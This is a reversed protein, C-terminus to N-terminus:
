RNRRCFSTDVEEDLEGSTLKGAVAELERIPRTFATALFYSAYIAGALIVSALIILSDRLSAFDAFAESKDIESMIVWNLGPLNLPKYASLVEVGRYDPFIQINTEGSIAARTGITDVLQLGISNNLNDIQLVTEEDVGIERILELYQERDEILFRSQNRLLLDEGVLYTEGSEGLGVNSWSQNSTMIADIEEVSIELVLVGKRVDEIFIPSAVFATPAGYAPIYKEFDAFVFEGVDLLKAAEVADGFNTDSHPGDILSTGFEIGRSVSYVVRSNKEAILYVDNYGFRSAFDSFFVDTEEIKRKYYAGLDNLEDQGSNGFSESDLLYEMQLHLALPDTPVLNKILEMDAEMAGTENLERIIISDYYAAVMAKDTLNTTKVLGNLLFISYEFASVADTTATNSALSVAQGSLLEFYNEIQQAKLERVATLREFSAKGLANQSSIGAMLSSVLVAVMAIPIGVLLIKTGIRVGKRNDMNV